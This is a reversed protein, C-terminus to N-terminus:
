AAVLGRQKLLERLDALAHHTRSKATGVPIGLRKAAETHTLGELFHLILPQRYREEVEALAEEIITRTEQQEALRDPLPDADAPDLAMSTDVDRDLVLDTFSTVRSRQVGRSANIAIREAITKSWTSFKQSPDFSHRNRIMRIFVEQCLDEARSRTASNRMFYRIIKPQYRNVIERLARDSDTAAYMRFLEEDSGPLPALKPPASLKGSVARADCSQPPEAPSEVPQSPEGEHIARATHDANV